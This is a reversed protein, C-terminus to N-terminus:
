VARIVSYKGWRAKEVKLSDEETGNMIDGGVKQGWWMGCGEVYKDNKQHTDTMTTSRGRKEDAGWMELAGGRGEMKEFTKSKASDEGKLAAESGV